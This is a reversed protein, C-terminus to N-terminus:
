PTRDREYVTEGGLMTMVVRLTAIKDEPVSLFDGDLVVLDALKGPEISGLSRDQNVFRAAWRTAMLLATKRDVAQRAGWVRGQDDKRTVYQQILRMPARKWPDGMELHVPVGKDVLDKVPQMSHMLEGWQAAMVEGRLGKAERQDFITNQLGFRVSDKYKGALEISQPSWNVNHDLAEPRYLPLLGDKQQDAAAFTELMIQSAKSGMNHMGAFNWGLKRAEMVTGWETQMKEPLTMDEWRRHTWTTSAWQNEGTHETDGQLAPIEPIVMRPAHTLINDPVNPGEDLPGIHGGVIQVMDGLSFDVINGIHKLFSQIYPNTRLDVSMFMRMRLDNRHFLNEAIIFDVASAHGILSTVGVGNMEATLKRFTRMIGDLSELDPWPRMETMLFGAAKQCFQGTPQGNSDKIVCFLDKSLGSAFALKMMASNALVATGAISVVLPNNPVIKDLDKFTWQKVEPPYTKTARIFIPEGPKAMAAVTKINGALQQATLGALSNGKTADEDSGSGWELVKGSAVLHSGIQTTKTWDGGPFINDSDSSIAGPIVTRGQLDMKKTKPGAMALMSQSDGVALIKRDRVAVAEQISFNTDDRDMTLIKGNYLVVEAFRLIQEPYQSQANAQGPGLGACFLVSWLVGLVLVGNKRNEM